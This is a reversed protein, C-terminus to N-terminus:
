LVQSGGCGRPGFAVRALTLSLTSHCHGVLAQPAHRWWIVGFGFPWAESPPSSLHCAHRETWRLSPPKKFLSKQVLLSTRASNHTHTHEHSLYNSDAKCNLLPGRIVVSAYTRRWAAACVHQSVQLCAIASIRSEWHDEDIQEGKWCCVSSSMVYAWMSMLCFVVQNLFKFTIKIAWSLGSFM